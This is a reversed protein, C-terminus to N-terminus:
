GILNMQQKTYYDRLIRNAIEEKRGSTPIGLSRAISRLEETTYTNSGIGVRTIDFHENNVARSNYSSPPIRTPSSLIKTRIYTEGNEYYTPSKPTTTRVPLTSSNYPILQQFVANYIIPSVHKSYDRIANLTEFSM